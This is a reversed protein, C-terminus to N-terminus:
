GARLLAQAARPTELRRFADPEGTWAFLESHILHALLETGDIVRPGPRAFYANADVVYVQGSLVAPIQSWGPYDLLRQAEKFAKAMGFGCPMVVLVEPAWALVSDWPIRVSDTGLRGLTDAGGAIAVMEPVWHGCCYVPDMWEMCFVRPRHRATEAVRRVRELRERGRSILLEAEYERRTAQGLDRINDFIQELSKPTMWLVDPAVPLLRLLDAVENGAPACAECLNQTIVLDPVAAQVVASDIEYLSLGSRLRQTVAVDIESQSMQEVPLASRVVAPKNRAEPPYDCEHSVGYVQDGLGLAFAMETASPLFSVIRRAM